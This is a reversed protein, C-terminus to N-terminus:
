LRVKKKIKLIDKKISDNEAELKLLKAILQDIIGIYKNKKLQKCRTSVHRDPNDKRTFTKNCFYNKLRNIDLFTSIM